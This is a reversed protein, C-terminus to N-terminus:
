QNVHRVGVIQQESREGVWSPPRDEFPQAALSLLRNGRQRRPGPNRLRSDRLMEANEPLCPEHAVAMFTALRM